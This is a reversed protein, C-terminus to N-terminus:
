LIEFSNKQHSHCGCYLSINAIIHCYGILGTILKLICDQYIKKEGTEFYVFSNIQLYIM